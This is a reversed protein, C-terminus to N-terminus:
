PKGADATSYLQAVEELVSEMTALSRPSVIMVRIEPQAEPAASTAAPAATNSTVTRDEMM